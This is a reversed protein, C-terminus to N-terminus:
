VQRRAMLFWYKPDQQALWPLYEPHTPAINKCLKRAYRLHACLYEAYMAPASEHSRQTSRLVDFCMLLRQKQSLSRISGDTWHFTGREFITDYVSRDFFYEGDGKFAGLLEEHLVGILARDPIYKIITDGNEIFKVQVLSRCRSSFLEECKGSFPAELLFLRPTIFAHYAAHFQRGQEQSIKLSRMNGRIGYPALVQLGTHIHQHEETSQEGSFRLANQSFATGDAYEATVCTPFYTPAAQKPLIVKSVRNPQVLGDHLVHLLYADASIDVSACKSFDFVRVSTFELAARHVKLHLNPPFALTDSIRSGCLLIQAHDGNLNALVYRYNNHLPTHCFAAGNDLGTTPMVSFESLGSGRFAHDAVHRLRPPFAIRHLATCESFANAAIRVLTKPLEVASLNRCQEFLGAPLDQVQAAFICEELMTNRFAGEGIRRVSTPLAIRRLTTNGAFADKGIENVPLGGILAPVILQGAFGHYNTIRVSKSKKRFAFGQEVADQENLSVATVHPHSFQAATEPVYCSHIRALEAANPIRAASEQADEAAAPATGRQMAELQLFEEQANQQEHLQQFGLHQQEKAARLQEQMQRQQLQRHKRLRLGRLRFARILFLLLLIGVLVAACILFVKEM